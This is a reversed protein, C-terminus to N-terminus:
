GNSGDKLVVALWLEGTIRWSDDDDCRAFTSDPFGRGGGINTKGEGSQAEGDDSDVGVDAEAVKVEKEAKFVADIVGNYFNEITITAEVM